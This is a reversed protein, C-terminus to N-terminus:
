DLLKVIGGIINVAQSKVAVIASSLTACFPGVPVRERGGDM